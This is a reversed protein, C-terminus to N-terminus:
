PQFDVVAVPTFVSGTLENGNVDIYRYALWVSIAREGPSSSGHILDGDANRHSIASNWTYNILENDTAGRNIDIKVLHDEGIYVAADTIELESGVHTTGNQFVSIVVDAKDNGPGIPDGNAPSALEFAPALQLTRQATSAMTYEDTAEVELIYEGAARKIGDFRATYRGDGHDHVFTLLESNGSGDL